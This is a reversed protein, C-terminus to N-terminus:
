VAAADSAHQVSPDRRWVDRAWRACDVVSRVVDFRARAHRPWARVSSCGVSAPVCKVADGAAPSGRAGHHGRSYWDLGYRGVHPVRRDRDRGVAVAVQESEAFWAVLRISANRPRSCAVSASCLPAYRGHVVAVSARATPSARPSLAAHGPAGWRGRPFCRRGAGRSSLAGSDPRVRCVASPSPNSGETRPNGACRNELGDCPATSVALSAWM